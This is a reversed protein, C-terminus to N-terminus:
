NAHQALQQEAALAAKGGTRTPHCPTQEDVWDGEADGYVGTSSIYIFRRPPSPLANLVNALGIPFVQDITQGATRDFGVAFLVTDSAPLPGLTDPRMIDAVFPEIGRERLKAARAPTRTIAHVRAGQALWLQAVRQGLYGCGIVLKSTLFYVRRISILFFQPAILHPLQCKLKAVNYQRKEDGSGGRM